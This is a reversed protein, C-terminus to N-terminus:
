KITEELSNKIKKIREECFEASSMANEVLSNLKDIDKDEMQNIEQEIKKLKSYEEAFTKSKETAM